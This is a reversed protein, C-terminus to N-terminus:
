PHAAVTGAETPAAPERLFVNRRIQEVLRIQQAALLEQALPELVTPDTVKDRNAVQQLELLINQISASAFTNFPSSNRAPVLPALSLFLMGTKQGGFYPDPRRYVERDWHTTVPSIINSTLYLEDALEPSLYLAKAFTWAAEFDPTSKPIGLMTGGIVTTHTGGPSWAPLPMLKMKGALGPLDQKWVGALWDPVISCIVTGDIRLQNGAASFEPADIAIRNPGGMWLALKSLIAANPIATLCPKEHDDFVRGGAQLLLADPLWPNNHWFNLLYRDPRGDGNKDAMLPRLVRIFDDWTEIQSMDIGAAEIIDARYALAVPHVDHPLGFIRGRSTWPTFAPANIKDMLGDAKLRDTLDVFGVDELPGLFTRGVIGREVEILDAVPTGSLFGSLMRRELAAYDLVVIDVARDPHEERWKAALPEYALYLNRSFTWFTQFSKAPKERQAVGVISVAALGLIVAVGPSLLARLGPSLTPRPM